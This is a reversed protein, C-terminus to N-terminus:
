VDRKLLLKSMMNKCSLTSMLNSLLFEVDSMIESIYGLIGYIYCQFAEVKTSAKKHSLFTSLLLSKKIYVNKM